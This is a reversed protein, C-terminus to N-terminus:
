KPGQASGGTAPGDDANKRLWIQGGGGRVCSPMHEHLFQHHVTYAWMSFFKIAFARNYMLFSRLLYVENWARGEEWWQQPYEFNGPVDHFHVHVGPRLIPLIEFFLRNVDSGVKSVHSSDVFLVDNAELAAFRDLPLEQLRQELLTVRTADDAQLLLRLRSLDPDIITLRMQGNMALSNIDLMAASSFGSGIEVIQKPELHRLMCYLIIADHHGYSPNNLYFRRGPTPDESFPQQPYYEAFKEVLAFQEAENLDLGPFDLKPDFIHRASAEAIDECSPLPSYFHGPPVFKRWLTTDAVMQNKERELKHVIKGLDSVRSELRRM